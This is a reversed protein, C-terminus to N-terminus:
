KYEKVLVLMVGRHSSTSFAMYGGDAGTTSQEIRIQGLTGRNSKGTFRAGATAVDLSQTSTIHGNSDLVVSGGTMTHTAAGGSGITLATAGGIKLLIQGGTLNIEEQGQANYIVLKNNGDVWSIQAGLTTGDSDFFQLQGSNGGSTLKM